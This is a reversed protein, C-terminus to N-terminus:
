ELWWPSIELINFDIFDSSSYNVPIEKQLIVLENGEFKFKFSVDVYNEYLISSPGGSFTVLLANTNLFETIASDPSATWLVNIDQMISIEIDTINTNPVIDELSQIKIVVSFGDTPDPGNANLVNLFTNLYVTLGDYEATPSYLKFDYTINDCDGDQFKKMYFLETVNIERDYLGLHGFFGIDSVDGKVQIFVSPETDSAISGYISFLQSNGGYTWWSENSNCPTFTSSEFGSYYRGKITDSPINDLKFENTDANDSTSCGNLSILALAILTYKNMATGMNTCM